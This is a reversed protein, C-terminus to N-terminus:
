HDWCEFPLPLFALLEFGGEDLHPGTELVFPFFGLQAFYNQSWKIIEEQQTKDKKVKRCKGKRDKWGSPIERWPKGSNDVSSWDKAMRFTMRLLLEMLGTLLSVRHAGSSHFLGRWCLLVFGACTGLNPLEARPYSPFVSTSKTVIPSTVVM